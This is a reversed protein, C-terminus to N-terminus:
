KLTGKIKKLLTNVERPYTPRYRGVQGFALAGFELLNRYFDLKLSIVCTLYWISAVCTTFAKRRFCVISNNSSLVETFLLSFMNLGQLRLVFRLFLIYFMGQRQRAEKTPVGIHGMFMVFPEKQEILEKWIYGFHGNIQQAQDLFVSTGVQAVHSFFIEFTVQFSQWFM